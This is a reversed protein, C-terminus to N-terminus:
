LWNYLGYILIADIIVELVALEPSIPKRESGVMLISAIASLCFVCTLIKRFIM